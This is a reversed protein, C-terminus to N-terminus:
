ILLFKATGVPPVPTSTCRNNRVSRWSQAPACCSAKKILTKSPLSGDSCSWVHTHIEGYFPQRLSQDCHGILGPQSHGGSGQSRGHLRIGILGKPSLQLQHLMREEPAALCVAVNVRCSGSETVKDQEESGQMDAQKEIQGRLAQIGNLKQILQHYISEPDELFMKKQKLCRTNSEKMSPKIRSLKHTHTHTFIYIRRM